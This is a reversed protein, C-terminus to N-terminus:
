KLEDVRTHTVIRRCEARQISSTSTPRQRGAVVGEAANVEADDLHRFDRHAPPEGSRHLCINVGLEARLLVPQTKSLEHSAQTITGSRRSWILRQSGSIHM